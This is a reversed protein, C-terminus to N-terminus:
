LVHRFVMYGEAADVSVERGRVRATYEVNQISSHHISDRMQSRHMSLARLKHELFDSIDVYFNPHFKERELSWFLSTNDYGVVLRQFPKVAPVGPRAATFAARFVAEHDQNYSGTPIALMTPKLRDLALKSEREFQAILDRRPISDLRLHTETDRFLVDWDDVQLFEMVAALEQERAGATVVEATGDYHKLDGVSCVIVYVEGGLHKIRAMTGACGFCEDDAHPAIVLLRQESLFADEATM